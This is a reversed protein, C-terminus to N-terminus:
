LHTKTDPPPASQSQQAFNSPLFSRGPGESDARTDNRSGPVSSPLLPHHLQGTCFSTLEKCNSGQRVKVIKQARLPSPTQGQSRTLAWLTAPPHREEFFARESEQEAACAAGWPRCSRRRRRFIKRKRPIYCVYLATFDELRLIYSASNRCM